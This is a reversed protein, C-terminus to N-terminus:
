REVLVTFQGTKSIGGEDVVIAIAEGALRYYDEVPEGAAAYLSAAGVVDHTPQRPAVTVSANVNTGTWLAEGTEANTIAFDVGDDYPSSGDKAYAISVLKGNLPATNKSGDGSADVPVTVVEKVVLGM